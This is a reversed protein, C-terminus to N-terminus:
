FGTGKLIAAKLESKQIVNVCANNRPQKLGLRYEM